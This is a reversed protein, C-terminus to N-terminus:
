SGGRKKWEEWQKYSMDSILMKSENDRRTTYKPPYKKIYSNMTCRCNYVLSPHAQPDAPFRIKYGSVEFPEDLPKRQRDLERHTDRTRGDLTAFWEKEMEIGKSNAEKFRELRGKNQAETVMTRAHTRVMNMNRNPMEKALAKAIMDISDGKIIGKAVINRIAQYNWVLNKPVNLKKPPLINTDKTLLERVTAPNYISFDLNVGVSNEMQYAAYNGNVQFVKPTLQNAMNFAVENAHALTNAISDRRVLWQKGQFVQGKLWKQYQEKTAKGDKLDKLWKAQKKKFKAFFVNMEAQIDKSAENYVSKLRKELQLFEKDAYKVGYDTNAM